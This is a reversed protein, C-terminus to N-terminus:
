TVVYVKIWFTNIWNLSLTFCLSELNFASWKKASFCMVIDKKSTKISIIWSQVRSKWRHFELTAFTVLFSPSFAKLVCTLVKTQIKGKSCIGTNDTQQRWLKHHSRIHRNRWRWAPSHKLSPRIAALVLGLRSLYVVDMLEWDRKNLFKSKGGHTYNFKYRANVYNGIVEHYTLMDADHMQMGSTGDVWMWGPPPFLISKICCSFSLHGASIFAAEVREALM